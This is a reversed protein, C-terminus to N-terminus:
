ANFFKEYIFVMSMNGGLWPFEPSEQIDSWGDENCLLIAPLGFQVHRKKRYKDSLNFEWQCGLLQKKNPLFKFDIDDLVIYEALPDWSDLNFMGAFYM